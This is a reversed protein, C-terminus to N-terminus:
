FTIMIFSKNCAMFFVLFWVTVMGLAMVMLVGAM